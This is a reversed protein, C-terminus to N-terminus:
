DHVTGELRELRNHLIKNQQQLGIVANTLHKTQGAMVEVLHSLQKLRESLEDIGQEHSMATLQLNELADFPDFENNFM